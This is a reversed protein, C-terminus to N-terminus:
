RRELLVAHTKLLYEKMKTFLYIFLYQNDHKAFGYIM